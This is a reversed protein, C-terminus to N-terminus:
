HKLTKKKFRGRWSEKSQMFWTVGQTVPDFCTPHWSVSLHDCLGAGEEGCLWRELLSEVRMPWLAVVLLWVADWGGKVMAVVDCSWRGHGIGGVLEVMQFGSMHLKWVLSKCYSPLFFLLKCSDLWKQGMKCYYALLFHFKWRRM